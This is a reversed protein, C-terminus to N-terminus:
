KSLLINNSEINKKYNTRIELLSIINSELLVDEFIISAKILSNHPLRIKSHTSYRGNGILVKQANNENGFWDFIRTDRAYFYFNRTKGKNKILFKLSVTSNYKQCQTIEIVFREFSRSQQCQPVQLSFKGQTILNVNSDILLYILLLVLALTLLCQSIKNTFEHNIVLIILFFVILLFYGMLVSRQTFLLDIIHYIYNITIKM